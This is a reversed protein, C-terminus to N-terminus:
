LAFYRPWSVRNLKKTIYNIISYFLWCGDVWGSFEALPKFDHLDNDSVFAELFYKNWVYKYNYHVTTALTAVFLAWCAYATITVLIISDLEFWTQSWPKVTTNFCWDDPVRFHSNTCFLHTCGTSYRPLWIPNQLHWKDVAQHNRNWYM